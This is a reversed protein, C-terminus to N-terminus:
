LAYRIDQLQSKIGRNKFTKIHYRRDDWRLLIGSREEIRSLKSIIDDTMGDCFYEQDKQPSLDVFPLVAISNEWIMGIIPTPEEPKEKKLIRNFLLYGGIIVAAVIILVGPM